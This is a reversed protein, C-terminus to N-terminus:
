SAVTTVLHAQVWRLVRDFREEPSEQRWYAGEDNEWQVETALAHTLGLEDHAWGSVDGATLEELGCGFYEATPVSGLRHQALAGLACVEGDRALVGGILRRAPLAVLAAELERLVAQGKRGTLANKVAQRWLAYAGYDGEYDDGSFRSM